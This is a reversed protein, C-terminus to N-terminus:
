KGMYGENCKWIKEYKWWGGNECKKECEKDKERKECEKRM